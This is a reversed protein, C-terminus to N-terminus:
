FQHRIVISKEIQRILLSYDSIRTIFDETSDHPLKVVDFQLTVMYKKYIVIYWLRHIIQTQEMRQITGVYGVIVGPYNSIIIRSTNFERVNKVGMESIMFNLKWDSFFEDAIKESGSLTALAYLERPSLSDKMDQAFNKAIISAYLPGRGNNSGFSQIIDPKEDEWSSWSMPYEIQFDLGKSKPHGKTRYYKKFGQSIEQVPSEQFDPRYTLFTEIIPSEIEGKSQKKIQEIFAIAQVQNILSTMMENEIQNILLNKYENWQERLLNKLTNEINNFSTKFVLDFQYQAKNAASALDPFDKNIRIISKLQGEYFKYTKALDEVLTEKYHSEQNTQSLSVESTFICLLM